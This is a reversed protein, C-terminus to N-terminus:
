WYLLVFVSAPSSRCHPSLSRVSATMLFSPQFFGVAMWHWANNVYMCM